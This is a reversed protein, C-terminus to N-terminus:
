NTIRILFDNVDDRTKLILKEGDFNNYQNYHYNRSTHNERISYDKAWNLLEEFSKDAQSPSHCDEYNPGRNMLNKKCDEWALDLLIVMSAREIALDAIRGFVGECIWRDTSTSSQLAKKVLEPDRKKNFGGPEWFLKDMEILNCDLQQALKKGLWSKGSGSNGLIILKM